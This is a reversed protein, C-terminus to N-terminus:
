QWLQRPLKIRPEEAVVADAVPIVKEADQDQVPSIEFTTTEDRPEIREFLSM